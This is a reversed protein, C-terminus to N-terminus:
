YVSLGEVVAQRKPGPDIIWFLVWSATRGALSFTASGDIGSREDVPSGWGALVSSERTATFVEARWGKM